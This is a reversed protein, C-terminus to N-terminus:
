SRREAIRTAALKLMKASARRIAGFHDLARGLDRRRLQVLGRKAHGVLAAAAERTGNHVAIMFVENALIQRRRTLSVSGLSRGSADAVVLCNWGKTRARRCFDVDEEYTGLRHDFPGVDLACARRILLCCGSV